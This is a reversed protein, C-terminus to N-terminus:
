KDKCGSLDFQMPSSVTMHSYDFNGLADMPVKVVIQTIGTYYFGCPVTYERLGSWNNFYLFTWNQTPNSSGGQGLANLSANLSTWFGFPSGDESRTFNASTEVISIANFLRAPVPEPCLGVPFVESITRSGPYREAFGIFTSNFFPSISQAQYICLNSSPPTSASPASYAVYAGVGILVFLVFPLWALRSTSGGARPDGYAM